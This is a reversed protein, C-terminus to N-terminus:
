RVSIHASPQACCTTFGGHRPCEIEDAQPCYYLDPYGCDSAIRQWAAAVKEDLASGGETTPM